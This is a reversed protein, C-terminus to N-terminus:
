AVPEAVPEVVTDMSKISEIYKCYSCNSSSEPPEPQMLLEAVEHLMDKFWKKDLDIETWTIQGKLQADVGEVSFDQPEYVLLGMRTIPKYSNANEAAKTFAYAYSHLQAAYILLHEPKPMSTKYDIIVYGKTDMDQGVGDTKGHVFVQAGLDKFQMAESTCPVNKAIVKINPLSPDIESLTKGQFFAQMGGDITNFIKAMPAFPRPTSKAYKMWYCRKCEKWLFAFDSPSLKFVKMTNNEQKNHLWGEVIHRHEPRCLNYIPIGYTSAIRIAQGTGGTKQSTENHNIAGDPTWCLVFEVKEDLNKGLVQNVNRSHLKKVFDNLYNWGPHVKGAIDMSKSMDPVIYSGGFPRHNWGPSPLFICMPGKVSKCGYEFATDAGDAGGSHLTYGKQALHAAVVHMLQLIDEPTERSGIGAYAKM